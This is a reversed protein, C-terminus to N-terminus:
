HVGIKVVNSQVGNITLSLQQEGPPTDAPIQADVQYFGALYGPALGSYTVGAPVGGITVQPLLGVPGLGTAYIEVYDGRAAPQELTTATTGANLIAGYGTAADFFIGPSVLTVPAPGPLDASVSGTVVTVRAAGVTQDDPVLFNVQTDNVFLIPAAKGDLLVQVGALTDPWPFSAAARAGKTLNAGFITAIGGPSLGPAGSAANVPASFSFPSATNVFASAAAAGDIRASV